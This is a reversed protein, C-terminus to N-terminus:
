YIRGKSKNGTIIAIKEINLQSFTDGILSFLHKGIVIDYSDDFQSVREVRINHM